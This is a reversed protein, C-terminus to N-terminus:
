AYRLFLEALADPRSAFASHGADFRVIEDVGATAAEELQLAPPLVADRELLIYTSPIEPPGAVVDVPEVLPGPPEPGLQGILWAATQEDLDSCFASTVDVGRSIPSLPHQMSQDVSTGAAPNTTALYILRRLRGPIRHAVRPITIGAMSHGVLIVDRLDAAELDAVVDDVYDAIEIQDQPKAELRTGHGRLDVALVAEVRPDGRLFPVVRDWCWAGHAGGHVLAFCAM